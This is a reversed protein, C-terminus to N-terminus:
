VHQIWVPWLELTRLHSLPSAWTWLCGGQDPGAHGRPAEAGMSPPPPPTATLGGRGGGGLASVELLHVGPSLADGGNVPACHKSKKFITNLSAHMTSLSSQSLFFFAVAANLHMPTHSAQTQVSPSHSRTAGRHGQPRRAPSRRAETEKGRDHSGEESSCQSFGLIHFIDWAPEAAPGQESHIATQVVSPSELYPNHMFALSASSTTCLRLPSPPSPLDHLGPGAQDM